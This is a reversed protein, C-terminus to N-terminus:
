LLVITGVGVALVERKTEKQYLNRTYNPNIDQALTNSKMVPLSNRNDPFKAM